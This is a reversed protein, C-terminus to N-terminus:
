NTQWTTASLLPAVTGHVLGAPDAEPLAMAMDKQRKGKPAFTMIEGPSYPCKYSTRDYTIGLDYVKGQKVLSLEYLCDSADNCKPIPEDEGAGFGM